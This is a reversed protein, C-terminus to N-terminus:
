ASALHRMFEVTALRCDALSNRQKTVEYFADQVKILADADAKQAIVFDESSAIKDWLAKREPATRDFELLANILPM